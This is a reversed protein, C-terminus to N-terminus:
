CKKGKSAQQKGGKQEKSPAEAKKTTKKEAVAL